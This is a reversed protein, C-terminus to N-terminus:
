QNKGTVSKVSRLSFHDTDIRYLYEEEGDNKVPSIKAALFQFTDFLSGNKLSLNSDHHERHNGFEQYYILGGSSNLIYICYIM